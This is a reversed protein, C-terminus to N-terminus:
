QQRRRLVALGGLALLGLTAPEPIAQGTPAAFGMNEALLALDTANVVGDCNFNAGSWGIGSNGFYQQLIALSFQQTSLGVPSLTHRRRRQLRLQFLLVAVIRRNSRDSRSPFHLRHKGTDHVILAPGCAARTEARDHAGLPQFTEDASPSAFNSFFSSANSFIKSSFPVAM